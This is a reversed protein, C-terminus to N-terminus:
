GLFDRSPTPRQTIEGGVPSSAFHLYREDWLHFCLCMKSGQVLHEPPEQDFNWKLIFNQNLKNVLDAEYKKLYM